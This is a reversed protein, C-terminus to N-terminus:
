QGRRGRERRAGDIEDIIQLEGPFHATQGRAIEHRQDFDEGLARRLEEVLPEL